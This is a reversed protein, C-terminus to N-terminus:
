AVYQIEDVIFQPNVRGNYYNWEPRGILYCQRPTRHDIWEQKGSMYVASITNGENQMVDLRLHSSDKGMAHWYEKLQSFNCKVRFIPREFNKGFPELQDLKNLTSVIEAQDIDLDYTKAPAPKIDMSCLIDKIQQANEAKFRFGAAGAHGGHSILYADAKDLYDAVNNEECNSRSSGTCVGNSESYIFAPKGTNDVVRGAIIGLIGAPADVKMFIVPDSTATNISEMAEKSYGQRKLNIETLVAANQSASAEDGCLLSQVVYESGCNFLHQYEKELRSAAGLTPAIKWGIDSATVHGTLQLREIVKQLGMGARNNNIIQLGKQVLQRNDELMPVVDAVTSVATMALMQDLYASDPILLTSLKYILGAGCYGDFDNNAPFAEPDIILNAQPIIPGHEGNVMLHHDLILVEWGYQRALKVQEDAAIGNDITMLLGKECSALRKVFNINLGYGDNFRSPTYVWFKAGLYNLLMVANYSSGIGDMDYDTFVVIPKQAKVHRMIIEAALELKDIAYNDRYSNLQSITKGTKFLVYEELTNYEPAKIYM